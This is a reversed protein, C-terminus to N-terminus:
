KSIVATKRSAHSVHEQATTVHESAIKAHTAAGKHDSSGILKAVEKHAKSALELHEAAKVHHQQPTVSASADQNKADTLTM